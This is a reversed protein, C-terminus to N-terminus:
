ALRRVLIEAGIVKVFENASINSTTGLLELLYQKDTIVPELATLTALSDFNGDAVVTVIDGGPVDTTTLADAKNVRVLKCDFTCTDGGEEHMDGVIKYSIIQDGIKLFNLPIWCKKAAINTALIAGTIAPTWDTGPAPYQFANVMFTVDRAAYLLQMNGAADCILAVHKSTNDLSIDTGLILNGVGNKLVVTRDTHEARLIAIQGESVGAITDLDDSAADGATDVRHYTQTVTIVGAAITLETTADPSLYAKLFEENDRIDVNLQAATLVDTAVWTRPATFAM